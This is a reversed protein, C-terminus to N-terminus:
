PRLRSSSITSSSSSSSTILVPDAVLGDLAAAVAGGVVAARAAVARVEELGREWRSISATRQRPLTRLPVTALRPAETQAKATAERGLQGARICLPIRDWLQAKSATASPPATVSVWRQLSPPRSATDRWRMRCSRRTTPVPAARAM